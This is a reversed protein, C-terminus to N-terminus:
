PDLGVPVPLGSGAVSVLNPRSMPRSHWVPETLIKRLDRSGTTEVHKLPQGFTASGSLWETPTWVLKGGVSAIAKPLPQPAVRNRALAGDAFVSLTFSGWRFGSGSESGSGSGNGRRGALDIPQALEIAGVAAEDALLLSERYGRVTDGGGISFREPAYLLGGAWQGAFRLRLELLKPSIRRAYNMQLQAANFFPSPTVAGPPVSRTGGLGHSFTLSAAFVTNLSRRTLDFTLRVADYETRGDRSGPSFSFPLGLLSSKVQRHVLLAGLAANVAPQWEGPTKGPMLARAIVTRSLGGELFYEKSRIDLPVLPLDVVSANNLGGRLSVTWRPGFLPAVYSGSFDTLGRTTGYQLSLLDGAQHWSRITGGVGIRRGGVSPARNNAYTTFLDLRPQPDVDLALSAEGPRGGPLLSANVTRIAPDDSLLRFDHEIARVNLPKVRASPMRHRIYGADLGKAHNGRFTVTIADRAGVAPVLRGMVLRLRLVGPEGQGEILVGSNPYGNAIFALNILQVLATIRDFDAVAGLLGNAAFQAKIWAADLPAGVAHVLVLASPSDTPPIWGRMALADGATADASIAIDRLVM